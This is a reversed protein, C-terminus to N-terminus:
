YLLTRKNAEGTRKWVPRPACPSIDTKRRPQLGNAEPSIAKVNNLRCSPFLFPLSQKAQLFQQTRRDSRCVSSYRESRRPFKDIVHEGGGVCVFAQLDATIVGINLAPRYTAM